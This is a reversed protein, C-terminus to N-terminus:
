KSDSQVYDCQVESERSSLTVRCMTVRCLTAECKVRATVSPSELRFSKASIVVPITKLIIPAAASDVVILWVKNVWTSIIFVKTIIVISLEVQNRIAGIIRM